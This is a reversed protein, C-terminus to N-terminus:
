LFKNPRLITRWLHASPSGDFGLGEEPQRFNRGLIDTFESVDVTVDPDFAYVDFITIMRSTMYWPHNRAAQYEQEIYPDPRYESGFWQRYVEPYTYGVSEDPYFRLAQHTRIAWAIEPDVYSAVMQEGWYGHDGRIFGSVAIDHLLCATITKEDMGAIQALRASQLMHDIPDFRHQFFDLLTPRKPMPPLRPDDGMLVMPEQDTRKYLASRFNTM